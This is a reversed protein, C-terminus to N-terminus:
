QQRMLYEEQINIEHMNDVALRNMWQSSPGAHQSGSAATGPEIVM